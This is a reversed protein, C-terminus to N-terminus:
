GAASVLHTSLMLLYRLDVISYAYAHWLPLALLQGVDLLCTCLDEYIIVNDATTLLALDQQLRKLTQFASHLAMTYLVKNDEISPNFLGDRDQVRRSLSSTMSSLSDDFVLFSAINTIMASSSQNSRM